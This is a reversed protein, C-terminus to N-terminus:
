DIEVGRLFWFGAFQDVAGRLKWEIEASFVPKSWLGFWYLREIFKMSNYHFCRLDQNLCSWSPNLFVGQNACFSLGTCLRSSDWYCVKTLISEELLLGREFIIRILVAFREYYNDCIFKLLNHKEFIYREEKKERNEREKEQKKNETSLFM